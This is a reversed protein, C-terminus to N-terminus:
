LLLVLFSLSRGFAWVGAPVWSVWNRGTDSALDVSFKSSYDFLPRVRQSHGQEDLSDLAKQFRDAHSREAKALIEFWDALDDFGEERATRAMAPYSDINDHMEAAISAKVNSSRRTCDEKQCSAGGRGNDAKESADAIAPYFGFHKLHGRIKSSLSCGSSTRLTRKISSTLGNGAGSTFRESRLEAVKFKISLAAKVPVAVATDGISFETTM